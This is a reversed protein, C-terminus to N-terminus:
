FHLPEMSMARVTLIMYYKPHINYKHGVVVQRFRGSWVPKLIYEYDLLANTQIIGPAVLLYQSKINYQLETYM